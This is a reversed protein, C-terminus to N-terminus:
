RVVVATIASWGAVNALFAAEEPTVAVLVLDATDDEGSAGLTLGGGGGASPAPAPAPLVLARRALTSAAAAQATEPPDLALGQTTPALLDVYMGPGLIQALAPEALRVAAVVTGPPGHPGGDLPVLVAAGLLTGEGVPVAVVRGVAETGARLADDPVARPPLHEVRLDAAALATGPPVPRAAVLVPALEPPPPQLRGVTIAAALGLLVAASAFRAKWALARLRRRARSAPHWPRLSPSTM